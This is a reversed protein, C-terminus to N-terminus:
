KKHSTRLKDSSQKSSPDKTTLYKMGQNIDQKAASYFSQNLSLSLNPYPNVSKNGDTLTAFGSLRLPLISAQLLALSSGLAHIKPKCNRRNVRDLSHNTTTFTEIQPSSPQKNRLSFEIARTMNYEYFPAAKQLRM